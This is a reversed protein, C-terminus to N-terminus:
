AHAYGHRQAIELWWFDNPTTPDMLPVQLDLVVLIAERGLIEQHVCVHGPMPMDTFIPRHLRELVHYMDANSAQLGQREFEARIVPLKEPDTQSRLFVFEM